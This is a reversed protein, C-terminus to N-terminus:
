IKLEICYHKVGNIEQYYSATTQVRGLQMRGTIVTRETMDDQEDFSHHTETVRSELEAKSTVVGSLERVLQGKAKAKAITIDKSPNGTSPICEMVTLPQTASVVPSEMLVAVALSIAKNM